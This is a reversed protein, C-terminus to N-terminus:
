LQRQSVPLGIVFESGRGVESVCKLSGGHTGVIIQHCVFLGLGTGQGVPKTTFFPDFIASQLDKPIGPGNDSIKILISDALRKTHVTIKPASSRRCLADIANSLINAFVQNIQSAYCEVPPLDDDYHRSIEIPLGTGENDLQSQLIMLASDLGQHIDVVKFSAEDLRSFTRLSKVIERIRETGVRMSALMKPIDTALFEMDAEDIASVIEANPNPYAKQFCEVIDLLSQFAHQTHQLNGHIFSVPNNIEHAVGAVTKGLSNMKETQVLTAQTIKLKKLTKELLNAQQQAAKNSKQLSLEARKQQAIDRFVAVAGTIKEDVVLPRANVSLWQACGTERQESKPQGAQIIQLEAADTSEGRIAKSLPHDKLSCPNVGDASFLKHALKWHGLTPESSENQLLQKAAPNIFLTHGEQNVVVVADGMSDLITQLTQLANQAHELQQAREQLNHLTHQLYQEQETASEEYLRLLEELTEIKAKLQSIEELSSANSSTAQIM